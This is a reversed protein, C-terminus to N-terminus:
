YDEEDEDDWNGFISNGKSLVDLDENASEDCVRVNSGALITDVNVVAIKVTPTLYIKKM